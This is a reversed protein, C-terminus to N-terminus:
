LINYEGVGIGINRVPDVHMFPWVQLLFLLQLPRLFLLLVQPLLMFLLQLVLLIIHCHLLLLILLSLLIMLSHDLCQFACFYLIQGYGASGRGRRVMVITKKPFLGFVLFRSLTTKSSVRCFCFHCCFSYYSCKLRM